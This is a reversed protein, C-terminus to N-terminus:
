GKLQNVEKNLTQIRKLPGDIYAKLTPLEPMVGNADAVLAEIIGDSDALYKGASLEAAPFTVKELKTGLLERIQAEKDDGPVFEVIEVANLLGAELLAVQVKFCYPCAHKFYITPKFHDTM